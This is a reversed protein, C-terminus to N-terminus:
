PLALIDGPVLGREDLQERNAGYLSWAYNVDGYYSAAISELTDGLQVTWVFGSAAHGAVGTNPAGRGVNTETSIPPGERGLAVETTIVEVVLPAVVEVPGLDPLDPVVVVVGPPLEIVGPQLVIDAPAAVIEIPTIPAVEVEAVVVPVLAVALVPAPLPVIPAPPTVTATPAATATAARVATATAAAVATATAAPVATATAPPVPTATAEPEATAPVPTDTDRPEPTATPTVNCAAASVVNTDMRVAGNRALARGSVSAGTLLDIDTLALINGLFRTTTGLVASSGIRWFVNCPSGRNTMLVSSGSATTLASVVNFIFVANPNSQANLTLTGTLQASSSFCYVGATLTLGGLDQGSLDNGVPCTQGALNTYATTTDARASAALADAAHITGGAVLGPPFGTVASGPSVGLNGTVTTPGTNTVTTSGLVAFSAAAGLTPATQALPSALGVSAFTSASLAVSLLLAVLTGLPIRRASASDGRGPPRQRGTRQSSEQM